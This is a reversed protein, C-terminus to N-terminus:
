EAEKRRHITILYGIQNDWYERLCESYEKNNAFGDRRPKVGRTANIFLITDGVSPTIRSEDPDVM